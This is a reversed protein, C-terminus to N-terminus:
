LVNAELELYPDASGSPAAAASWLQPLFVPETVELAALVWSILFSVLEFSM